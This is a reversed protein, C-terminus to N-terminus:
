CSILMGWGLRKIKLYTVCSAKKWGIKSGSLPIRDRSTLNFCQGEDKGHEMLFLRRERVRELGLHLHYVEMIDSVYHTGRVRMRLSDSATVNYGFTVRM